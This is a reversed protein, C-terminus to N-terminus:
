ERNSRESQAKRTQQYLLIVTSPVLTAKKEKVEYPFRNESGVYNKKEKRKKCVTVINLGCEITGAQV